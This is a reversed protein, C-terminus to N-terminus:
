PSDPFIFEVPLSSGVKDSAANSDFFNLVPLDAFRLRETKAKAGFMFM